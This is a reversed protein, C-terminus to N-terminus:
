GGFFQPLYQRHAELLRDLLQRAIDVSRVLPHAILAQLAAARDGEAGAKVTLQEYAKVAQVLGRVCLPLAGMERPAPGAAGISAPLEVVVDDPLGEIAGKNLVNVIHEQGADSGLSEIVALAADSYHAGGRLSLREPKKALAPDEYEKLLEREIEEVEEGRTRAAAKAKRLVQEHAYYYRLYGSPIMGIARIYEAAVPDAGEAANALAVGTVDKGNVFVRRAFSLHNLGLYEMRVAETGVGFARALDRQLGVPANCLGIIRHTRYRHVAETIIGSPNTFNILWAQPALATVEGAIDLMVPITRLAKAFGGPGTTEQGIIDFELPIREDVARAANGGVRIQVVVFDAGEIAAARDGTMHVQFPDGGARAMRQVLGGVIGLRRPNIDMLWLDRLGLAGARAVLGEALEPTYTSGAGIVAIKGSAM